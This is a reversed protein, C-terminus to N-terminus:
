KIWLLKLLICSFFYLSYLDNNISLPYDIYKFFNNDNLIKTPAVIPINKNLLELMIDYNKRTFNFFLGVVPKKFLIDLKFKLFKWFVIEKNSFGGCLWKSLVCLIQNNKYNSNLKFKTSILNSFFIFFIGKLKILDILFYLLKFFQFFIFEINFIYINNYKYHYSYLTNFLFNSKLFFSIFCFYSSNLKLTNKILKKNIKLM